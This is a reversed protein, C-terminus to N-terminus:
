WVQGLKKPEGPRKWSHTSRASLTEISFLASVYDESLVMIRCDRRCPHRRLVAAPEICCQAVQPVPDRAAVLGDRLPRKRADQASLTEISFLASVYDESLVM